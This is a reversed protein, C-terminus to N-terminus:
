NANAPERTAMRRVEWYGIGAGLLAILVTFLVGVLFTVISLGGLVLYARKTPSYRVRYAYILMAVAVAMAVATVLIIDATTVEVGDVFGTYLDANLIDYVGEILALVAGVLIVKIPTVMTRASTTPEYEPSASQEIATMM